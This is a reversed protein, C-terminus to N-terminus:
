SLFHKYIFSHQLIPKTQDDEENTSVSDTESDTKPKEFAEQVENWITLPNLLKGASEISSCFSDTATGIVEDPLWLRLSMGTRNQTMFKRRQSEVGVAIGKTVNLAFVTTLEAIISAFAVGKVVRNNFLVEEEKSLKTLTEFNTDPRNEYIPDKMYEEFTGLTRDKEILIKLEEGLILKNKNELNKFKAKVEARELYQQTDTMGMFFLGELEETSPPSFSWTIPIWSSPKIDSGWLSFPSIKVVNKVDPSSVPQMFSYGGDFALRNHLKIDNKRNLRIPLGGVPAVAASALIAEELEYDEEFKSVIHNSGDSVTTITVALRENKIAEYDVIACDIGKEKELIKILSICGRIYNRLKFTNVAPKSNLHKMCILMFNKAVIVDSNMMM